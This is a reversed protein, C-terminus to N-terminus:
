ARSESVALGAGLGIVNQRSAHGPHQEQLDGSCRAEGGRPEDVRHDFRIM